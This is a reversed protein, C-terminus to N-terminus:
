DEVVETAARRFRDAVALGLGEEVPGAAVIVTVGAADLARMGAFLRRAAVQPEDIPGLDCHAASPAERLAEALVEAPLLLGLVGQERERRVAAMLAERGGRVYVLRARPAYHKAMMGPSARRRGGKVVTRGLVAEIAEVPVGGPRLLAPRPGTLDLVTSEVGVECPGADLVLDVRGRLDDMVHAATTPSTRTFRNASPAAVPVGAARILGLAVPHRPVRVAVTDLGAAVNSAVRPHRKLVLTLPGPWFRAALIRAVPPVDTAVSELEEVGAIHVILPDDAAREKATYISAVAAHDLANAGLGYVTETPFAVLGGERLVRGARELM